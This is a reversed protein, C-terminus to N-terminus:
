KKAGCTVEDFGAKLCTKILSTLIARFDDELLVVCPVTETKPEAKPDTESASPKSSIQCQRKVVPGKLVPADFASGGGHRMSACSVCSITLAVILSLRKSSNLRSTM